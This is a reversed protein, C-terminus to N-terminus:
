LSKKFKGGLRGKGQAKCNGKKRRRREQVIPQYTTSFTYNHQSKCLPQLTVTKFDKLIQIYIASIFILILILSLHM